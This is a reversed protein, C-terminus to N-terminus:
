NPKFRYCMSVIDHHPSLKPLLTELRGIQGVHVEQIASFQPVMIDTTIEQTKEGGRKDKREFVLTDGVEAGGLYVYGGSSIIKVLKVSTTEEVQFGAIRPAQHLSNGNISYTMDTQLNLKSRDITATQKPVRSEAQADAEAFLELYEEDPMDLIGKDLTRNAFYDVYIDENYRAFIASAAKALAKDSKIFRLLEKMDENHEDCLKYLNGRHEDLESIFWRYWPKNEPLNNCLDNIGESGQKARNL